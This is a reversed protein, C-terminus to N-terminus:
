GLIVRVNIKSICKKKQDFKSKAVEDRIGYKVIWMCLMPNDTSSIAM